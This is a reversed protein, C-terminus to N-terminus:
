DEVLKLHARGRPEAEDQNARGGEISRLRPQLTPAPADRFDFPQDAEAFGPVRDPAAADLVTPTISDVRMEDIRFHLPGHGRPAASTIPMLAGLMRDIGGFESRLPLLCIEWMAEPNSASSLRAYGVGPDELTESILASFSERSAPAMIARVNMGRLEMGFAQSLASGAVRFRINAPNLAEVIFVNKVDNPMDRPDVDSRMPALRGARLGSWYEYLGRMKANIMNGTKVARYAGLEICDQRLGDDGDM